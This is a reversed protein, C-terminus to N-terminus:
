RMSRFRAITKYPQSIRKRLLIRTGSSQNMFSVRSCTILTPERRGKTARRHRAMEFLRTAFPAVEFFRIRVNTVTSRRQLLEFSQMVYAGDTLSMMAALRLPPDVKL